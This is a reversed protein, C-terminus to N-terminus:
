GVLVVCHVLHQLLAQSAAQFYRRADAAAPRPGLGAPLPLGAAEVEQRLAESLAELDRSGDLKTLLFCSAPDLVVTQHFLNSIRESSVAQLRALPSAQPKASVRAAHRPTLLQADVVDVALAHLLEEASAKRQQRSLSRLGLREAAALLADSHELHEPWRERLVCLLAKTLPKDTSFRLGNTARFSLQQDSHLDASPDLCESQSGFRLGRLHRTLPQEAVERDAHCLLSDRIKRATLFDLYQERTLRDKDLGRLFARAQETLLTDLAHPLTTDAVYQLGHHAARDAFQHFYCPLNNAEMLSHAVFADAYGSLSAHIGQLAQRYGDDLEPAAEAVRRLLDRGERAREVPDDLDQTHYLMMGRAMMRSHCGPFTNFSVFAIGHPTLNQRCIELVKSGVNAPVWSYLGNAVIFDFSGFDEDIEMLDFAQLEINTLELREIHARGTAIQGASIDVGVCTSRPLGLAISILNAGAACGLELVRCTELAPTQLGHLRAVVALRNPHTHPFSVEPYPLADYHESTDEM